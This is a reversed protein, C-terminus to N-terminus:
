DHSIATSTSTESRTCSTFNDSSVSSTSIGTYSGKTEGGEYFIAGSPLVRFIGSHDLEIEFRPFSWDEFKGDMKTVSSPELTVWLLVFAVKSDKYTLKEM